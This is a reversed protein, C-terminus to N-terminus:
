LSPHVVHISRVPAFSLSGPGACLWGIRLLSYRGSQLWDAVYELYTCAVEWPYGCVAGVEQNRPLKGGTHEFSANGVCSLDKVACSDIYRCRVAAVRPGLSGPVKFTSGLPSYITVIRELLRGHVHPNRERGGQALRVV